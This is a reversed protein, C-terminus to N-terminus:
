GDEPDLLIVRSSDYARLEGSDLLLTVVSISRSGGGLLHAHGMGTGWRVAVGTEGTGPVRYNQEPLTELDYSETHIMNM